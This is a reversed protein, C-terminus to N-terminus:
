PGTPRRWQQTPILTSILLKKTQFLLFFLLLQTIHIGYQHGLIFNIMSMPVFGIRQDRVCSDWKCKYTHFTNHIILQIIYQQSYQINHITKHLLVQLYLTDLRCHRVM